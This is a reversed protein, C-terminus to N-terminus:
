IYRHCSIKIYERYQEIYIGNFDTVLGLHAFPRDSEGPLQLDGGKQNYIYETVSSNSCAIAFYDVQIM